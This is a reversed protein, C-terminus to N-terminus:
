ILGYPTDISCKSNQFDHKELRYTQIDDLVENELKSNLLIVWPCIEVYTFPVKKPAGSTRSGFIVGLIQTFQAQVKKLWYLITAGREM